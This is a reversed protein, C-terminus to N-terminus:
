VIRVVLKSMKSLEATVFIRFLSCSQLFLTSPRRKFVLLIVHSGQLRIPYVQYALKPLFFKHLIPEDSSKRLNYQLCFKLSFFPCVHVTFPELKYKHEPRFGVTDLDELRTNLGAELGLSKFLGSFFRLIKLLIYMIVM